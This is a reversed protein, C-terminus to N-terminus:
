RTTPPTSGTRTSARASSPIAPRKVSRTPRPGAPANVYRFDATPHPQPAAAHIPLLGADAPFRPGAGLRPRLEEDADPPVEFANILIVPEGAM